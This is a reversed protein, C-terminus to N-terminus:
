GKQNIALCGTDAESRRPMRTTAANAKSMVAEPIIVDSHERMFVASWSGVM